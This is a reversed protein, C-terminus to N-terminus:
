KQPYRYRAPSVETAGPAFGMVRINLRKRLSALSKIFGHLGAKSSYYYPTGITQTYAGVSGLFLLCGPLKNTTWYGIALQSLRIPHILNIAFTAYNGPDAEPDDTSASGEVGPPQWFSSWPPEYIGAGPLVLDVRPFTDLAKKWLASIQPWSAVDTKEFVLSAKDQAPPPHPYTAALGQAEPRLALDGVLVSCGKGLLLKV